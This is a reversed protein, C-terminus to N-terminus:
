LVLGSGNFKQHTIHDLKAAMEKTLYKKWDGIEGRRFFINNNLGPLLIGTKNVELTSMHEFSCLNVIEDVMGSSEEEPSFPCGLFEGLRRVQAGPQAKMVEYKMFLVKNPKKLREEWYGLIHDWIPGCFSVGRCFLDFAEELSIPEPRRMAKNSFHWLSIFTDKIDRCLYVIKCTSSKDTVSSPLTILPIHTSFLGTTLLQYEAPNTLKELNPVLSHPNNTLLPHNDQQPHHVSRNLLAFLIAKLWTTGSKPSTVLLVDTAKPQFYKQCAITGQLHLPPHWFGNYQYSHSVLIDTDKPLSSLTNRFEQSYSDHNAAADQQQSKIPSEM